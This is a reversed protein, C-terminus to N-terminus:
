RCGETSICVINLYRSPGKDKAVARRDRHPTERALGTTLECRVGSPAACTPCRIALVEKSHSEPTKMDSLNHWSAILPSQDITFM